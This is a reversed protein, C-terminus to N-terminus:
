VRAYNHDIILPDRDIVRSDSVTANVRMILANHRPEEINYIYFKYGAHETRSMIQFLVVLYNEFTAYTVKKTKGSIVYKMQIKLDQEDEFSLYIPLIM